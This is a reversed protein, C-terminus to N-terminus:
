EMEEVVSPKGTAAAIEIAARHGKSSVLYFRGGDCSGDHRFRITQGESDNASLSETERYTRFDVIALDDGLEFVQPPRAVQQEQREQQELLATPLDAVMEPPQTTAILAAAQPDFRVTTEM